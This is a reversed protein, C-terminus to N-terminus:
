KGAGLQASTALLERVSSALVGAGRKRGPLRVRVLHKQNLLRIVTRTTKNLLKAAESIDMVREQEVEVNQKRFGGIIFARYEARRETSLDEANMVISLITRETMALGASSSVMEIAVRSNRKATM